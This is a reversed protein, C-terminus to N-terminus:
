QPPEGPQGLVGGRVREPVAERGMQQRAAGVQPHDLLQQPMGAQRGRLAVRRDLAFTQHLQVMLCMRPCSAPGGQPPPQRPCVGFRYSLGLASGRGMWTRSAKRMRITMATAKTASIAAPRTAM